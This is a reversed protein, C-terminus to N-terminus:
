KLYEMNRFEEDLLKNIEMEHFYIMLQRVVQEFPNFGAALGSQHLEAHHKACLSIVTFHEPLDKKRNNGMGVAIVHHQQVNGYCGYGKLCCGPFNEKQWKLYPLFKM